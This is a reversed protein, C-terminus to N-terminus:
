HLNRLGHPVGFTIEFVINTSMQGCILPYISFYELLTDHKMIVVAAVTANSSICISASSVLNTFVDLRKGDRTDMLLWM